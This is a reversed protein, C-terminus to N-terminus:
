FDVQAPGDLPGFRAHNRRRLPRLQPDPTLFHPHSHPIFVSGPYWIDGVTYNLAGGHASTHHAILSFVTALIRWM